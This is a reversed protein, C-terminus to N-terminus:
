RRDFYGAEALEHIKQQLLKKDPMRTEYKAIMAPSMSRSLAFEVVEKDKTKCLLIGISPNETEKKVDRDLAELYFEM